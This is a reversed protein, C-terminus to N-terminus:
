SVKLQKLEFQKPSNYKITHLATRLNFVGGSNIEGVITGLEGESNDGWGLAAAGGM